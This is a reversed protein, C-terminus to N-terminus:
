VVHQVKLELHVDRWLSGHATVPHLTGTANLLTFTRTYCVSNDEGEM